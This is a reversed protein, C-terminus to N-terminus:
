LNDNENLDCSHSTDLLQQKLYELSARRLPGAAVADVTMSLKQAMIRQVARRFVNQKQPEKMYKAMRISAVLGEAEEVTKCYLYFRSNAFVAGDKRWRKAKPEAPPEIWVRAKYDSEFKVRFNTGADKRELEYGDVHACDSLEYKRVTGKGIGPVMPSKIVVLKGADVRYERRMKMGNSKFKM